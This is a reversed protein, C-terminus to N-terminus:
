QNPYIKINDYSVGFQADAFLGAAGKVNPIPDVYELQWKDPETEAAVWAKGFIRTKGDKGNEVRLKLRYWTDKKWDVKVRQTRETEPQWPQLELTGQSGFVMLAYRQAVIGADGMQRRREVMRIDAEMTYNQWDTPGFFVRMRKFLTEDPAKVFAKQGDVEQVAFKGAITSVWAAPQKGVEYSDFTENWPLPPIIRIRAEGTLNEIKAKIMGAQGLKPSGVTLTGDGAITGDLGPIEWDAKSERLFRGKGDFLRATFKIKDGPKATVETPVVQVWAAPGEGAPLKELPKNVSPKRTKGIAYLNDMSAFYVRGNSIAPSAIIQEDLAMSQEALIECRDQHAKLIYFKGSESGVYIKGDGIVMSAKQITGLHQKWLQKGSVVDFAYLVSGNDVQLIRDGDIIPSSFGGQFGPVKWKIKDPGVKGKATADIAALLGMENTDLNEESHSVYATNNNMVVATNIGRKAMEFRWVPEGTQPKIAHVAGDGGGAILLRTGDVNAIIPMSYTTDYPRGGPTSVWVIQGNRKDVGYFRHSRNAQAGWTSTPGSVIVLDGDIIPSVTRGGHTTFLAFEETFSREWLLKGDKNLAILPGGGGYIFINGTAPDIAPSSWGVRHAPIDSQFINFKYEWVVKGTDADFCMLREQLNPGKGSPNQLYVRNGYVLPASRGGYPVKWALDWKDPLGKEDSRGDRNPGRWEPWDAAYATAGLVTLSFLLTATSYRFM